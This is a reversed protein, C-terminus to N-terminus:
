NNPNSNYVYDYLGNQGYYTTYYRTLSRGDYNQWTVSLLVKKMGAHANTATRVLIFRTGIYPNDIFSPDLDITGTTLANITPWDLLRIRELECQMIQGALSLNRATDLSNYARQLTTISTALVLLLVSAAM